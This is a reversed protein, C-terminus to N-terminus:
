QPSDDNVIEIVQIEEQQFSNPIIWQVLRNSQVYNTIVQTPVYAFSVVKDKVDDLLGQETAKKYYSEVMNVVNNPM